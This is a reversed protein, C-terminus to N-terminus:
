SVEILDILPMAFTRFDNMFEEVNAKAVSTSSIPNTYTPWLTDAWTQRRTHWEDADALSIGYDVYYKQTTDPNTAQLRDDTNNIYINFAERTRPIITSGAM